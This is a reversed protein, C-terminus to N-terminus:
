FYVPTNLKPGPMPQLLALNRCAIPLQCCAQREMAVYLTLAAAHPILQQMIICYLPLYGLLFEAKM